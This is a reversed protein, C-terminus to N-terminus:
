RTLEELTGDLLFLMTEIDNANLAVRKGSCFVAASYGETTRAVRVQIGISSGSAMRINDPQLSFMEWRLVWFKRALSNLDEITVDVANECLKIQHMM